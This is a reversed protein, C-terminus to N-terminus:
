KSYKIEGLSAFYCFSILSYQYISKINLKKSLHIIHNEIHTAQAMTYIFYFLM